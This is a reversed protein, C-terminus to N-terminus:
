KRQRQALARAVEAAFFPGRYVLGTYLQVLTAGADKLMAASLDGTFAGHTESRCDQGGIEIGEGALRAM